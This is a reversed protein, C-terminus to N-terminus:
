ATTARDAPAPQAAVVTIAAHGRHHLFERLLLLAAAAERGAPLGDLASPRGQAALAQRGFWQEVTDVALTPGALAAWPQLAASRSYLPSGADRQPGLRMLQEEVTDIAQEIEPATPPDHRFCDRVIRATGLDLRQAGQAGHVVLADDGIHLWTAAAPRVAPPALRREIAQLVRGDIGHGLGPFLDLTAAAGLARLAQEAAVALGAPMVRDQDGHMLHLLVGAPAQRPPLAFRGAIAVVRGALPAAGPVQTSELAMIAGQSFGILTTREPGVGSRQQWAAVAQAFAPLAAAVREPRNAETVGQVSFWQWGRGFESPLPARLSVIWAEPHHEALAEGLPRLDEPSAGVGHFLLLLEAGAVGSGQLILDDPM